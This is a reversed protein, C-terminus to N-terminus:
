QHLKRAANVLEKAKESLSAFEEVVPQAAEFWKQSEEPTMEHVKVGNDRFIQATERNSEIAAEKVWGQLDQSVEELIKRQGDSLKNEWSNNSIVLPNASYLFANDGTYNFYKVVEFIRYSLFSDLSTLTADITNTQLASYIESSAMSTIGAGQESLMLETDKGAGRFKLGKVDEPLIIEKNKSAIAMTGWGWVLNRVGNEELLGNLVTGVEEDKWQWAQDYSQIIGPLLTISFEPVKGADYFPAWIALDIAGSKLTDFQEGAKVLSNAPYVQIKLSGGSAKEVEKAFREALLSRYDGKEGQPAAWQHALKLTVSKEESGNTNEGQVTNSGKSGCGALIVTLLVILYIALKKMQIM